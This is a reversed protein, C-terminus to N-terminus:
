IMFYHSLQKTLSFNWGHHRLNAKVTVFKETNWVTDKWNLVNVTGTEGSFCLELLSEGILGM